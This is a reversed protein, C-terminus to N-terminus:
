LNPKMQINNVIWYKNRSKECSQKLQEVAEEPSNARWTIMEVTWDDWCDWSNEWKWQYPIIRDPIATYSYWWKRGFWRPRWKYSQKWTIKVIYEDWQEM